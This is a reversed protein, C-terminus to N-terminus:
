QLLSSVWMISVITPFSVACELDNQEITQLIGNLYWASLALQLLEFNLHKHLLFGSSPRPFNERWAEVQAKPRRNSPKFFCGGAELVNKSFAGM